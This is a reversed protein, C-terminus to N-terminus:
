GTRLLTAPTLALAFHHTIIVMKVVLAAQSAVYLDKNIDSGKLDCSLLV